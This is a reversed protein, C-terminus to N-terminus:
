KRLVKRIKESNKILKKTSCKRTRVLTLFYPILFNQFFELFIRLARYFSFLCNKDTVIKQLISLIQYIRLQSIHSINKATNQHNKRQYFNTQLNTKLNYLFCNAYWLYPLYAPAAREDFYISLNLLWVVTRVDAIYM